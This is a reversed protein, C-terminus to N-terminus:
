YLKLEWDEFIPKVIFKPDYVTRIFQAARTMALKHNIVMNHEDVLINNSYIAIMIEFNSPLEAMEELYDIDGIINQGVILPLTGNAYYYFFERFCKRLDESLHKTIM